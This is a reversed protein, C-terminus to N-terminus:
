LKMTMLTFHRVIRMGARAYIQQARNDAGTFLTSFAAGERAFEAMLMSFLVTAIGRHEYEPDTCIGTFLVRGSKQRDVP